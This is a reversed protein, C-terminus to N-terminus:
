LAAADIFMKDIDEETKGLTPILQKVLPDNRSVALSYEWSIKAEQAYEGQMSDIYNQVDGLLGERLLILRASKMSISQPIPEKVVPSIFKEGDWKDGLKSDKPDIWESTYEAVLIYNVVVGYQIEAARM